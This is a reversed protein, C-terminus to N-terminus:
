TAHVAVWLAVTAGILIPPVTLAGLKLFEGLPPEAGRERLVRRWLLTALSGTYTLNPGANVGILVALVTASGGAVAAPLLVLLAPVNNLLNAAVAAVATAGLLALLGSGGPLVGSVVSGLGHNAVAHVIVGLGLVFGLLPLDLARVLQRLTPREIALMALAGAAAPWAADIRLAGTVGFAVLTAGLVYLPAPPLPGPDDPPVERGGVLDDAFGRRLVAWEIAVAVAWPLVMLVAFRTFSLGAAHVALLNTLNSVPLLLSASNALHTCAYVHPRGPLRARAAAAFVAPTLLVVTADLGLVATVACAAVFVLGLLRTASGGARAALRGALADFLGARDCGDGLVLLAALVAITPGLAGAETRAGHWSIAGALLLVGAATLAVVAEPARRDRVVAAALAALLALLALAENV